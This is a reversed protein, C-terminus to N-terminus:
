ERVKSRIGAQKLNRPQLFGHVADNAIDPIQPMQAPNQPPLALSLIEDPLWGM